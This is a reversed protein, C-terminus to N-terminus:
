LRGLLKGLARGNRAFDFEWDFLVSGADLLGRPAPRRTRVLLLPHRLGVAHQVPARQTRHLGRSEAPHCGDGAERSGHQVHSLWRIRHDGEGDHSGARRSRPTRPLRRQFRSRRFVGRGRARQAPGASRSAAGPCSSGSRAIPSGTVRPPRRVRGSATALRDLVARMRPHVYHPAEDHWMPSASVVSTFYGREDVVVIDEPAIGCAGLLRRELAQNHHQAYKIMFIVKLDPLAAKAGDWGWLRCIVETMLHGFHGSYECDLPLLRRGAHAPSQGPRCRAFTPSANVLKPQPRRRRSALPVLGPPDVLERVDADWRGPRDSGPLSPPVACTPSPPPSTASRSRRRMHSSGAAPSPRAAKLRSVVDLDINPERAAIM